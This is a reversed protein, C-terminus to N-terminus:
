RKITSDYFNKIYESYKKLQFIIAKCHQSLKKQEIFHVLQIYAYRGEKKSPHLDRILCM